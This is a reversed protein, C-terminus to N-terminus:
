KIIIDLLQTENCLIINNDKAYGIFKVPFEIDDPICVFVKEYDYMYSAMNIICQGIGRAIDVKRSSTKCEIIHRKDVLLDIEMASKDICNMECQFTKSLISYLKEQFLKETHYKKSLYTLKNYRLEAMKRRKISKDRYESIYEMFLKTLPTGNRYGCIIGAEHVTKCELYISYADIAFQKWNRKKKPLKRRKENPKLLISRNCEGCSTTSGERLYRGRVYCFRGCDCKCKWVKDGRISGEAKDVPRLAILKGFRKGKLDIRNQGHTKIKLCGCSRRKNRFLQNHTLEITKGCDCICTYKRYKKKKGIAQSDDIITLLGLREGVKGINAFLEQQIM